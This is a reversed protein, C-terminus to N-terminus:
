FRSCWTDSAKQAPSYISALYELRSACRDQACRDGSSASLRSGARDRSRHGDRLGLIPFGRAGRRRNELCKKTEWEATSTFIAPSTEDRKTDRPCRGRGAPIGGRPLFLPVFAAARLRRFMKSAPMRALRAVSLPGSSSRLLFASPLCVRGPSALFFSPFLPLALFPLPLLSSPLRLPVSSPIPLVRLIGIYASASPTRVFAIQM